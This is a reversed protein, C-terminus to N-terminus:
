RRARRARRRAGGDDPYRQTPIASSAARSSRRRAAGPIAPTSAPPDAAAGHACARRQLEDIANRRAHTAHGPAARDAHRLPDPRVRLHRRPQDVAAGRAQEPAMYELTGLVATEGRAGRCREVAPSRRPGTSRAGLDMILAGRRDHHERAESRPPRRGRRAGGRPGPSRAPSACRARSRCSGDRQLVTALDDGQVYPMTIYKIGDM